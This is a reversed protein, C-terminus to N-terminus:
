SSSQVNSSHDIKHYYIILITVLGCTIFSFLFGIMLIYDRLFYGHLMTFFQLVNFGFFTVLSVDNAHKQRYIKIAQPVFLIANIFLGISFIVEVFNKFLILM